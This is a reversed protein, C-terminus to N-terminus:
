ADRQETSEVSNRELNTLEQLLYESIGIVSIASKLLDIGDQRNGQFVLAKATLAYLSEVINVVVSRAPPSCAWVPQSLSLWGQRIYQLGRKYHGKYFAIQALGIWGELCRPHKRVVARYIPFAEDPSEMQLWLLDAKAVAPYLAEPELMLWKDLWYIAAEYNKEEMHEDVINDIVKVAIETARQRLPSDQEIMREVIEYAAKYDGKAAKEVALDCLAADQILAVATQHSIQPIDIGMVTDQQRQNTPRM